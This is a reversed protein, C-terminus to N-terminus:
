TAPDWQKGSSFELDDRIRQLIFDWGSSSSYLRERAHELIEDNASENSEDDNMTTNYTESM